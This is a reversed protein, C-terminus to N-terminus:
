NINFPPHGKLGWRPMMREKWFLGLDTLMLFFVRRLATADNSQLQEAWAIAARGRLGEAAVEQMATRIHTPSISAAHQLKRWLAQDHTTMAETAPVESWPLITLGARGSLSPLVMERVGDKGNQRVRAGLLHPTTFAVAAGRLHFSALDAEGQQASVPNGKTDSSSSM